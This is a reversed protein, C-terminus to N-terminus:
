VAGETFHRGQHHVQQHYHRVLLITVHHHRPIILPNREDSELDALSLRGGVRLCGAEDLYPSLKCLQSQKPIDKGAQIYAFVEPFAKYQLSRIVVGKAKVLDEPGPGKCIHWGRCSSKSNGQKFTNAIHILRALVRVLSGWSSFSEFRRPDLPSEVVRTACSTVLPRVDPDSDPNVLDFSSEMDVGDKDPKLLFDPGKLWMSSMLTNAPISRSAQDAPNMTTPVYNWQEPLSSKRIRQVRNSVYVYFRRSENRIYGLVVKSDSFFRVSNFQVDMEERLVDAIEVALVASCLELRPVTIEPVPALKAKGLIFRLESKGEAHKVKIYAVAAIAQTSADCFICLERNTSISLSISAYMRPIRVHELDKLSNKWECWEKLKREPLPDDWECSNTTLQRLLARGRISVPVAFGFPDYLSNITSLVGRRTYPKEAASVQFTFEDTAVDWSIGLSRQMPPFDTGLDLDKLGKALDEKPFAKMVNVSNSVFKHLTLNSTALTEQARKLAAIAEDCSPFSILGDDVYFHREVLHRTRGDGEESDISARRLGYIAVAPSPSNGFVHVRMRYEAIPEEMNNNQHWLFRLFNRHDERVLFCHFMQKIDATVAVREKRFRMLVGLLTNNLNPGTLLVDNLSLGNYRASSDFVVRIQDPKYPHYVGFFPLYWCEEQENLPPAPEAHANDFVNQMFDVFQKKMEPRKRLTCHVSTLRQIAQQKNNPLRPRPSRFPLPAVWSNTDEQYVEKEMIRLFAQDEISYSLKDDASTQKFVTEGIIDAEELGIRQGLNPCNTKHQSQCSFNEKVQFNNQCPFLYSPRGNDMINTKFVNIQAPKHAGDLCIDGVIVWGLALRQAFPANPPGNRQDLVKHAQIVDRGLLLLIDAQPDLAPIDAAIDRLHPHFFAANPTPIENRNDPLMECEILTPLPLSCQGDLSEVIFHTARRGTAELVGACTKLIYPCSNETIAFADFFPSRALSKNSQDDLIAYTRLKKDHHGQPYVHVLCIKACSRGVSQDGCVKTCISTALPSASEGEGGHDSIPDAVTHTKWPAPGAHLATIHLDSGCETCHIEAKCNKAQHSSSACCRFCIRNQKLYANREELPKERFARCKKLAHPRKHIPCEKNPDWVGKEISQRQEHNVVEMRNVSIPMRPTNRKGMYGEVKFTGRPTSSRFSPDNRMSAENRIFATFVSFPPFSVLHEQKYKTGHTMWKEQLGFPLKDVIPHIGRATDLYFLGPIYGESKASDIELLLDGLDRLLHPDKNTISPFRELKDFLAKELAEPSGYCEQLREWVKALGFSPNNVHAARLRKAHQSSEAGLWKTLLDLEESANFHLGQTVNEFSSKWAWFDGPEDNFKTLGGTLLERRALFRTLDSMNSNEQSVTQPKTCSSPQHAKSGQSPQSPGPNGCSQPLPTYPTISHDSRDGDQYPHFYTSSVAIDPPKVDEKAATKFQYIQGKVYETTRQSNDYTQCLEGSIPKEEMESAAAEYVNAEALAAEADCEQHLAELTAELRAEEVKLQAQKVRVEIEKRAFAAKARAAEAKARANVAAISAVSRDSSKSAKSAHTCVSM